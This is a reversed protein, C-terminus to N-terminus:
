GSTVNGTMPDVDFKQPTGNKDVVIQYMTKHPAGIVWANIADAQSHKEAADVADGLSWKANALTKLQDQATQSLQREPTTTGQGMVKGTNADVMGEWFTKKEPSYTRIYYVPKGDRLDFRVDLARADSNETAASIADLVGMKADHFAGFNINGHDGRSNGLGVTSAHEGAEGAAFKSADLGLASLTQHDLKGSANMGEKTQFDHLAAQTRSDWTGNVAGPDFGKKKLAGQVDRIQQQSLDNASIQQMQQTQTQQMHQNQMRQMQQTKAAPQQGEPRMSNPQQAFAPYAVAATAVISLLLKNM